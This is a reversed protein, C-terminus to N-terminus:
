MHELINFRLPTRLARQLAAGFVVQDLRRFLKDYSCSLEAKSLYLLISIFCAVCNPTDLSLESSM